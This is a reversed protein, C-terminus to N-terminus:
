SDRVVGRQQQGRERPQEVDLDDPAAARTRDSGVDGEEVDAVIGVRVAPDDVRQAPPGSDHHQVVEHEVVENGSHRDAALISRRVEGRHLAICADGAAQERVTHEVTAHRRGPLCLGVLKRERALDEGVRGPENDVRM